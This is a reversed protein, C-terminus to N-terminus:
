AAEEPLTGFYTKVVQTVVQGHRERKKFAAFFM